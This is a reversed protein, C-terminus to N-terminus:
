QSMTLPSTERDPGHYDRVLCIGRGECLYIYSDCCGEARALRPLYMAAYRTSGGGRRRRYRGGPLPKHDIDPQVDEQHSTRTIRSVTPRPSKVAINLISCDRPRTLSRQQSTDTPSSCLTAPGGLGYKYTM